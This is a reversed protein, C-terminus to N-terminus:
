MYFLQKVIAFGELWILYINIYLVLHMTILLHM